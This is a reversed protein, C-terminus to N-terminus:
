PQLRYPYLSEIVLLINQIENVLFRDRNDGEVNSMVWVFQKLWHYVLSQLSHMPRVIPNRELADLFEKVIPEQIHEALAESMEICTAFFNQSVEEIATLQKASIVLLNGVAVARRESNFSFIAFGRHCIILYSKQPLHQGNFQSFDSDYVKYNSNSVYVEEM